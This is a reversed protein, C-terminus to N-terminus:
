RWWARTKRWCCSLQSPPRLRWRIARCKWASGREVRAGPGPAHAHQGPLRDVPLPEPRQNGPGACQGAPHQPHAVVALPEQALEVRNTTPRIVGPVASRWTWAGEDLQELLNASTNEAIEVSLQAQV